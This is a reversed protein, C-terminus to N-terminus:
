IAAISALRYGFICFASGVLGLTVLGALFYFRLSNRKVILGIAGLVLSIQLFLSGMDFKDGARALVDQQAEIQQAGIVLGLQGDIEQSWMAEGVANSGRLIEDKEKKYRQIETNVRHALQKMEDIKEPSISDTAILTNLLELQGKALSEKISKSQYWMYSKTKENGLQLEDDGFKGGGLDNVALVAAFISLALGFYIEWRHSNRDNSKLDSSEDM